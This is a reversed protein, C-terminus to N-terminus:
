NLLTVSFRFMNLFFLGIVEVTLSLLVVLRYLACQEKNSLTQSNQIRPTVGRSIVNLSVSFEENKGCERNIHVKHINLYVVIV